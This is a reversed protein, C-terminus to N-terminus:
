TVKNKIEVKPLTKLYYEANYQKKLYEGIVEKRINIKRTKFSIDFVRLM